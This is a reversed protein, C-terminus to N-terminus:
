NSARPSSVMLPFYKRSHVHSIARFSSCAAIFYKFWLTCSCKPLAEDLLFSNSAGVGFYYFSSPYSEVVLNM